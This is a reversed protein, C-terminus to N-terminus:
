GAVTAILHVTAGALNTYPDGSTAHVTCAAATLATIALGNISPAASQLGATVVPAAAFRGAPFSFTALGAANTVATGAYTAREPSFDIATYATADVAAAASETFTQTGDGLLELRIRYQTATAGAKRRLWLNTTVTNTRVLLEFDNGEGARLLFVDPVVVRVVNATIHYSIGLTYSKNLSIGGTGASVTVRLTYAHSPNGVITGIDIRENAVNSLTRDVYYSLPNSGYLLQGRNAASSSLHIPVNPVTAGAIAPVAEAQNAGGLGVPGLRRITETTDDTGDPLDGALTRFFDQQPVSFATQAQTTM